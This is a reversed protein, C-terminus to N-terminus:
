KFTYFSSKSHIIPSKACKTTSFNPKTQGYIYNGLHNPLFIVGERFTHQKISALM